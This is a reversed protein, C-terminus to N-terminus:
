NNKNYKHKNVNWTKRTYFSLLTSLLSGNNGHFIVYFPSQLDLNALTSPASILISCPCYSYRDRNLFVQSCTSSDFCVSLVAGSSYEMTFLMWTFCTILPVPSLLLTLICQLPFTPIISDQSYSKWNYPM